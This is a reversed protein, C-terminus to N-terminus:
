DEEEEYWTSDEHYQIKERERVATVAMGVILVIWLIVFLLLLFLM